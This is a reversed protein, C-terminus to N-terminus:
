KEFDTRESMDTNTSNERTELGGDRIRLIADHSADAVVQPDDYINSGKIAVAPDIGIRIEEALAQVPFYIPRYSSKQQIKIEVATPSIEEGKGEGINYCITM